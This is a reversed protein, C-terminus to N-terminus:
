CDPCASLREQLEHNEARLKTILELYGEQMDSTMTTESADSSECAVLNPLNSERTLSLLKRRLEEKEIELIQLKRLLNSNMAGSSGNDQEMKNYKEMIEAKTNSKRFAPLPPPLAGRAPLQAIMKDTVGEVRNLLADEAKVTEQPTEKQAEALKEQPIAMTNQCKEYADYNELANSIPLNYITEEFFVSIKESPRFSAIDYASDVRLELVKDNIVSIDLQHISDDKKTLIGYYSTDKDLNLDHAHKNFNLHFRYKNEKEYFSLTIDQDYIWRIICTDPQNNVGKARVVQWNVQAPTWISDDSDSPEANADQAFIQISLSALFLMFTVLKLSRM